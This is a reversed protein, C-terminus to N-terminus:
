PHALLWRYVKLLKLIATDTAPNWKNSRRSIQTAPQGKFQAAGLGDGLPRGDIRTLDPRTFHPYVDTYPYQFTLLFGIWTDEEKYPTGLKLGRVIVVAGGAGDPEAEVACEPLSRRVQEIAEAVPAALSM